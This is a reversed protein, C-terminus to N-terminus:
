RMLQRQSVGGPQDLRRLTVLTAFDAREPEALDRPRRIWQEPESRPDGFCKRNVPLQDRRPLRCHGPVPDDVLKGVRAVARDM